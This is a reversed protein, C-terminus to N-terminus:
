RTDERRVIRVPTDCALAKGSGTGGAVLAMPSTVIERSVALGAEKGVDAQLGSVDFGLVYEMKGTEPNKLEVGNEAGLGCPFFSWAIGESLVYREHWPAINPIPPVSFMHVTNNEYDWGPVGDQGSRAVWANRIGYNQNFLEVFNKEGSANFTPPVAFDVRLPTLGDGAWKTVRVVQGVNGRLEEEIGLTSQAIKYMSKYMKDRKEMIKVPSSLGYAIASFFLVFPAIIGVLYQGAFFAGFPAAFSLLILLFFLVRRSLLPKKPEETVDLDEGKKERIARKDHVTFSLKPSMKSWKTPRPEERAKLMANKKKVIMTTHLALFGFFIVAPLVAFVASAIALNQTTLGEFIGNIFDM